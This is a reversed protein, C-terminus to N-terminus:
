TRQNLHYMLADHLLLNGEQVPPLKISKGVKLHVSVIYYTGGSPNNISRLDVKEVESWLISQTGLVRRLELGEPRMSVKQVIRTLTFLTGMAGAIFLMGPLYAGQSISLMSIYAFFAAACGEIWYRRRVLHFQKIQTHLGREQSIKQQILKQLKEFDDLQWDLDMLFRDGVGFLRLCRRWNRDETRTIDSWSVHVPSRSKSIHTIGVTGAVIYYETQKLLVFCWVSMGILFLYSFIVLWLLPFTQAEPAQWTLVGFGVM